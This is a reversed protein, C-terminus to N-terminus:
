TNVAEWVFDIEFSDGQATNPTNADLTYTFRFPRTVAGSGDPSWASFGNGFNTRAGRITAMDTGPAVGALDSYTGPTGCSSGDGMEIQMDLNDDLTVTGGTPGDTESYNETYLKVNAALNGSYTVEICDTGTAGPKLNSVAFMASNADNDTLTVTGAGFQNNDNRTTANFAATTSQWVLAASVVLGTAVVAGKWRDRHAQQPVPAPVQTHGDM